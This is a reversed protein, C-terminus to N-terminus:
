QGIQERIFSIAQSIREVTKDKGILYLILDLDPSPAGGTVALRLPMGVKGFGIEMEAVVTELVGHIQERQWDDLQNFLQQCKELVPIADANFAKKVSKPNYENIDKYYFACHDAM